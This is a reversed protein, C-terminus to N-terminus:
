PAENCTTDAPIGPGSACNAFGTVDTQDIDGDRAAPNGEPRDFCRCYEPSSPIPGLDNGTICSQLVAFDAQDVDLDGDADAWPTHCGPVVYQQIHDVWLASAAGGPVGNADVTMRLEITLLTPNSTGLPTGAIAMASYDESSFFGNGSGLPLALSKSALEVGNEDGDLIRILATGTAATNPALDARVHLDDNLQGAGDVLSSADITQFFSVDRAENTASIDIGAYHDGTINVARHTVPDCDPGAYSGDRKFGGVVPNRNMDWHLPKPNSTGPVHNPDCLPLATDTGLGTEFGANTLSGMYVLFPYEAPYPTIRNCLHTVVIRYRGGEVGTLDFNAVLDSGAMALEGSIPAGGDRLKVLKVSTIADLSLNTGTFTIVNETPGAGSRGYSGTVTDITTAPVPCSNDTYNLRVFFERDNKASCGTFAQNNPGGDAVNSGWMRWPAGTSTGTIRLMYQSTAPQSPFTLEVWGDFPGTVTVNVDQAVPTQGGSTACNTVWPFLQLTYTLSGSDISIRFAAKEFTDLTGLHNPTSESPSFHQERVKASGATFEWWMATEESYLQMEIAQASGVACSLVALGLGIRKRRM